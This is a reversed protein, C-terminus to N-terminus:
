KKNQVDLKRKKIPEGDSNVQAEIIYPIAVSANKNRTTNVDQRKDTTNNDMKRSESLLIGIEKKQKSAKSVFKSFQNELNTIQAGQRSVTTKLQQIENSQRDVITTLGKVVTAMKYLSELESVSTALRNVLGNLMANSDRANRLLMDAMLRFNKHLQTKAQILDERDQDTIYNVTDKDFQDLLQEIHDICYYCTYFPPYTVKYSKTSVEQLLIPLIWIPVIRVIDREKIYYKGRKSSSPPERNQKKNSQMQLYKVIRDINRTPPIIYNVDMNLMKALHKGFKYTTNGRFKRTVIPAIALDLEDSLLGYITTPNSKMILCFASNELSADQELIMKRTMQELEQKEEDDGDDEDDDNNISANNNNHQISEDDDLDNNRFEENESSSNSQKTNDEIYICLEEESDNTNKKNQDSNNLNEVLKIFRIDDDDEEILTNKQKKKDNKLKYKLEYMKTKTKYKVDYIYPLVESYYFQLRITCPKQTSLKSSEIGESLSEPLAFEEKKNYKLTLSSLILKDFSM